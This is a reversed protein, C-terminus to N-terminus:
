DFRKNLCNTNRPRYIKFARLTSFCAKGFIEKEIEVKMGKDLLEQAEEQVLL